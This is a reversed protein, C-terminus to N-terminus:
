MVFNSILAIIGILFCYYAFYRFQKKRVLVLMTKVCFYGVVGAVIMGLLYTFGLGLSMTESGFNKLELVAAGLIALVSMLFSYKVAFKRNLGALLCACITMGSRSIGPFTSIGQCIGIWMANAYTVDKPIKNGSNIFDVVLLLICTILLGIGPFLLSSGAKEVLGQAVFGLIGTPITSVLILMVFKRYNNHVIKRYPDDDGTKRNNIFIKINQIVDYIIRVTEIALQRIDKWFAVFVAGLTGIHLMVDFLIGTDTNVGFVLKFIVLHGSSSVPLFETLGQLLGMLIANLVSM